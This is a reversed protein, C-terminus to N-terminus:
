VTGRVRKVEGLKSGNPQVLLYLGGSGSLKVSRECPKAARCPTDNLM